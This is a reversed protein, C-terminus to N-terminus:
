RRVDAAGRDARPARRGDRCCSAAARERRCRGARREAAARDGARYHVLGACHDAAHVFRHLLLERASQRHPRARHDPRRDAHVGPAASRAAGGDPQRQLRRVRRRVGRCHRRASPTAGHLLHRRGVARGARIGCRGDHPEPLRRAGADADAAEAAHHEAIGEAHRDPLRCAGRRWRRAARRARHRAAPVHRVGDGHQRPLQGAGRRDAPERGPDAHRQASRDRHVGGARAAGLRDLRDAPRHRVSHGPRAAQQRRARHLQPLSGLRHGAPRRQHDNGHPLIEWAPGPGHAGSIRNGTGSSTM